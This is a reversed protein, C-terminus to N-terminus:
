LLAVGFLAFYVILGVPVQRLAVMSLSRVFPCNMLAFGPSVVSSEVVAM